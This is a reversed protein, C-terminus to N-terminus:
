PKVNEKFLVYGGGLLGLGGILSLAFGGTRYSAISGEFILLFQGTDMSGGRRRVELDAARSGLEPSSFILILGAVFMVCMVALVIMVIKSKM